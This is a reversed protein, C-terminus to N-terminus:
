KKNPKSDNNNVYKWVLYFVVTSFVIGGIRNQGQILNIINSVQAASIFILMGKKIKSFGKFKKVIKSNFFFDLIHGEIKRDWIDTYQNRAIKILDIIWGIFFGGATFYYYIGTRIKGTIFRHGGFFGLFLCILFLAYKNIQFKKFFKKTKNEFRALLKDIPRLFVNIFGVIVEILGTSSVPRSKGSKFKAVRVGGGVGIPGIGVGGGVSIGRKNIRVPGLRLGFGM